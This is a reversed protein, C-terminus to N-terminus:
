GSSPAFRGKLPKRPNAIRYPGASPYVRPVPLEDRAFLHMRARKAGIMAAALTPVLKKQM